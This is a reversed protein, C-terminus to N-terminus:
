KLEQIARYVQQLSDAYFEPVIDDNGSQGQFQEVDKLGHVGTGVLLTRM